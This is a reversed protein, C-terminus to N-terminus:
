RTKSPATARWISLALSLRRCPHARHAGEFPQLEQRAVAPLGPTVLLATYKQYPSLFNCQLSPMCSLPTLRLAPCIACRVGGGVCTGGNMMGGVGNMMGRGGNMLAGGRDDDSEDGKTEM